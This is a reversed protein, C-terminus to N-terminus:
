EVEEYLGYLLVILGSKVITIVVVDSTVIVFVVAVGVVVFVVSPLALLM